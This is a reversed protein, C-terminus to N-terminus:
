DLDQGFQDKLKKRLEKISSDFKSVEEVSANEGPCNIGTLECYERMKSLKDEVISDRSIVAFDGYYEGSLRRLEDLANLKIQADKLLAQYEPKGKEAEIEHDVDLNVQVNDPVIMQGDEVTAGNKILELDSILRERMKETENNSGAPSEIGMYNSLKNIYIKTSNYQLM